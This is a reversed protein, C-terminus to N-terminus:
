GFRALEFAETSLSAEGDVVMESLLKGAIPGLCFGHGSFGTGLLYGELGEVPGLLPLKDPTIALTGSWVREFPVGALAPILQPARPQLYALIDEDDYQAFAHQREGAAAVHVRGAADPRACAGVDHSSIFETFPLHVPQTQGIITVTPEIPIHLGLDSGLQPTWPGAAHIVIPADIQWSDDDSSAGVDRAVVGTVHGNSRTVEVVESKTYVTAGLRRAAKALAPAVLKPNANGDTACYKAGVFTEGLWPARNYLTEADWVEVLLGDAQEAEAERELQVMRADTSAMRINGGRRYELDAGLAESLTSWLEISAMALPRDAAQRSQARVGGANRGSAETGIEGRELLTARVGRKALYYAAACGVIGGGIIVVPAESKRITM